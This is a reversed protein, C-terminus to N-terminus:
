SGPGDTVMYIYQRLEPSPEPYPTPKFGLREYLKLARVNEPVVFLSCSEAGLESRGRECLERVLTSGLGQGRRAPAIALRGLHCRGVRLYFQGFGGLSGDELVLAWTPLRGLM